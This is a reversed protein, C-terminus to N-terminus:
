PCGDNYAAIFALVDFINVVGDNTFDAIPDLANYADIFELVDFINIVGDTFMDARCTVMVDIHDSYMIVEASQGNELGSIDIDSFAGTVSQASLITFVEGFGVSYGDVVSLELTGDVQADDLVILRDHEVGNNDGALDVKMSATSAMTLNAVSAEGVGADDDDISVGGLVELSIDNLDSSHALDVTDTTNIGQILGEGLFGAGAEVVVNGNLELTGSITSTGATGFRVVDDEQDGSANIQSLGVTTMQSHLAIRDARLRGSNMELSGVAGDDLVFWLQTNTEFVERVGSGDGIYMSGSFYQALPVNQSYVMDGTQARVIGDEPVDVGDLDIYDFSLTGGDAIVEGDNYVDATVLGTGSITSQNILRRGGIVGNDLNIEGLNTWSNNAVVEQIVLLGDINLTGDFLNSGFREIFEVDLVLSSDGAITTTMSGFGDLDFQGGIGTDISTLGGIISLSSASPSFELHGGDIGEYASVDISDFITATTDFKLVGDEYIEGTGRLALIPTDFAAHGSVLFSGYSDIGPAQIMSPNNSSPGSFFKFESSAAALILESSLFDGGQSLHISGGLAGTYPIQVDMTFGDWVILSLDTNTWNLRSNSSQTRTITLVEEDTHTNQAWIAGSLLDLDGNVSNMEITGVGLIASLNDITLQEDIQILGGNQILLSGNRITLSETDFDRLAPSASIVLATGSGDIITDGSVFLSFDHTFVDIGNLVNLTGVAINSTMLVEDHDGSLTASDVITNPVQGAPGFWMSDDNWNGDGGAWTFIDASATIGTAAILVLALTSKRTM